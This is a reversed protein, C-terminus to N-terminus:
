GKNEQRATEYELGAGRYYDFAERLMDDTLTASCRLAMTKLSETFIRDADSFSCGNCWEAAKEPSLRELRFPRMRGAFYLVLQAHNPLPFRILEDFRRALAHDLMKEFNTAAIIPGHGTYGDLLQLFSNVVRRLEGVDDRSERTKGIADFEDFFVVGEHSTAFEFVRRLNAATEGLFSAVLSDFRVYFLPLQLEGAIVEACPADDGV